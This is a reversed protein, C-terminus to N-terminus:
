RKGISASEFTVRFREELERREATEEITRLAFALDGAVELILSREEEDIEIELPTSVGLFGM